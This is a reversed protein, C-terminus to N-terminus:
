TRKLVLMVDESHPTIRISNKLHEHLCYAEHLVFCSARKLLKRFQTITYTRLTYVSKYKKRGSLLTYSLTETRARRDINEVVIRTTVKLSGRRGQWCHINDEFGGDPLLHLGLVYIGNRKLHRAVCRLHNIASEDTHLHRFTDVTCFAGDFKPGKINFGAM